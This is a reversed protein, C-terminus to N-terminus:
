KIKDQGTTRRALVAYAIFEWALTDIQFKTNVTAPIKYELNASGFSKEYILKEKRFIAVAFAPKNPSNLESVIQDFKEIPISEAVTNASASFPLLVLLGLMFYAAKLTRINM